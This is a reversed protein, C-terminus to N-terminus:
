VRPLEQNVMADLLMPNRMFLGLELVHEAIKNKKEGRIVKNVFEEATASFSSLGFARATSSIITTACWVGVVALRMPLEIDASSVSSKESRM